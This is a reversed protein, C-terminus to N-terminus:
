LLLLKSEVNIFRKKAEGILLCFITTTTSYYVKWFTYLYSNLDSTFYYKIQSFLYGTM